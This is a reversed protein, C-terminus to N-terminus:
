SGISRKFSGPMTWCDKSELIELLLKREKSTFRKIETIKDMSILPSLLAVQKELSERESILAESRNLQLNHSMLLTTSVTERTEKGQHMLLIM